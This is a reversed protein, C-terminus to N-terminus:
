PPIRFRTENLGIESSTVNITIENALTFRTDITGISLIAVSRAGRAPKSRGSGPPPMPGSGYIISWSLLWPLITPRKEL